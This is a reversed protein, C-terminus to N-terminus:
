FKPLIGSYMMQLIMFILGIPVFYLFILHKLNLDAWQNIKVKSPDSRLYLVEVMDNQKLPKSTGLTCNQKIGAYDSFSINYEYRNKLNTVKENRSVVLANIKISDRLFENLKIKLYIGIIIDSLIVLFIIYLFKNDQNAILLEQIKALTEQM